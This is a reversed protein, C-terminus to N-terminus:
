KEFADIVKGFLQKTSLQHKEVWEWYANDPNAYANTNEGCNKCHVSTGGTDVRFSLDADDCACDYVRIHREAFSIVKGM